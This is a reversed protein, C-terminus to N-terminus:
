SNRETCYSVLKELEKKVERSFPVAALMALSEQRLATIRLEVEEVVGKEQFLARIWAVGEEDLKPNGYRESFQKQEKANLRERALAYYITQKGERADGTIPKGTQQENGFLGLYDDRMQYAIGLPVALIKLDKLLSEECGALVAGIQLPLYVSYLATKNTYVAMIQEFSLPEQGPVGALSDVLEGCAVTFVTEDLAKLMALRQEASVPLNSLTDHSLSYAIDGALLAVSKAAYESGAFKKAYVGEINPGGYRVTDRDIIDDHILLFNHLLELSVGAAIISREDKGGLGAYALYALYPRLRKGGRAIFDDMAQLLELCHFDSAADRRRAAAYQEHLAQDVQEKVASLALM